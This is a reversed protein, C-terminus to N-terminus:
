FLKKKTEAVTRIKVLEELQLKQQVQLENQLRLMYDLQQYLTNFFKLLDDLRDLKEFRINGTRVANEIVENERLTIQKISNVQALLHERLEGLAKSLENDVLGVTSKLYETRTSFSEIHKTMVEQILNNRRVTERVEVAISGIEETRELGKNLGNAVNDMSQLLGGLSNALQTFMGFSDTTQKMQMLVDTNFRTIQPFDMKRIEALLQTQSNIADVQEKNLTNIKEIQEDHAKGLETIRSTLSNSFLHLESRLQHVSDKFSSDIPVQLAEVLFHHFDLIRQELQKRQIIYIIGTVVSILIGILLVWPGFSHSQRGAIAIALGGMVFPVFLLFRLLHDAFRVHRDVIGAILQMDPQVFHTRILYTNITRFLKYRAEHKPAQVSILRLLEHEPSPQPTERPTRKRIEDLILGPSHSLLQEKSAAFVQIFYQKSLPVLQALEMVQQLLWIGLGVEAFLMIILLANEM